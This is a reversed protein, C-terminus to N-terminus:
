HTRNFYWNLFKRFLILKQKEQESIPASSLSKLREKVEKETANRNTIFNIKDIDNLKELFNKEKNPIEFFDFSIEGIFSKCAQKWIILDLANCQEEWIKNCILKADNSLFNNQKENYEKIAENKLESYRKEIFEEVFKIGAESMSFVNENCNKFQLLNLNEAVTKDTISFHKAGNLTRFYKNDILLVYIQPSLPFLIYAGICGVGGTFKNGCIIPNDSTIFELQTKNEMITMQLDNIVGQQTMGKAIDIRMKTTNEKTQNELLSDVFMKNAMSHGCKALLQSELEKYMNVTEQYASETRNFQFWCFQKLLLEDNKTVSVVSKLINQIAIAWNGEFNDSLDNEYTKDKGYFYDEQCQNEYPVNLIPKCNKTNFISFLKGQAFNKLYFEPVYHQKKKEAVYFFVM